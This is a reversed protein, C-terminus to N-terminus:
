AATKWCSMNSIAGRSGRMSARSRKPARAKAHRSRRSLPAISNGARHQAFPPLRRHRDQRAPLRLAFCVAPAGCARSGERRDQQGSLAALEAHFRANLESYAEFEVEGPNAGFVGDLEKVVAQISAMAEPKVGREAALRAATGELVGRIEIADIVDAFSFQRVVFGGSRARELLGEEALRSMADRLPTRSIELEEALPVEYLRTGGRCSAASSRRACSSSRVRRM